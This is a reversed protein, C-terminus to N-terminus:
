QTIEALENKLKERCSGLPMNRLKQFTKSLHNLDTFDLEYAIESLTLDTFQLKVEVLQIKYKLIYQKLSVGFNTKFYESFYTSSIGFEESLRRISLNESSYINSHIFSLIQQQKSYHEKNIISSLNRAIINLVSFLSNHVVIDCYTVKRQCESIIISLLSKVTENDVDSKIIPFDTRTQNYFIYELKQFWQKFNFTIEQITTKEFYVKQFKIFHILSKENLKISYHEDPLLLFIAGSKFPISHGNINQFGSGNEIFVLEFFTIAEYDCTIKDTEYSNVQIPEYLRRMEALTSQQNPRGIRKCRVTRRTQSTEFFFRQSAFFNKKSNRLGATTRLALRLRLM